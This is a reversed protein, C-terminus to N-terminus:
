IAHRRRSGECRTSRRRPYPSQTHQEQDSRTGPNLLYDKPTLRHRSNVEFVKVAREVALRSATIAEAHKSMNLIRRIRGGSHMLEEM